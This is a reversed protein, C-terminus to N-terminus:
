SQGSIPSPPCPLSVAEEGANQGEGKSDTSGEAGLRGKGEEGCSPETGVGHWHCKDKWPPSVVSPHVGARSKRRGLFGAQEVVHHSCCLLFHLVPILLSLSLSLSVQPVAHAM